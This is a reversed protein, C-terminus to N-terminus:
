TKNGKLLLSIFYIGGVLNIVVSIPTSLNLVREIILQGGVLAIISILISAPILYRHKYTKLFEHTINVVLLGLFTIPGILATSVSVLISTIILLVKVIKEYSLGLNIAHDRGLSLVDLIDIYDYMYIMVLLIIVISILLVDNNVNNFSAFMKGQVISFENPNIIMQMFSAGSRFLTGLILGVLLLFYINGKEKELMIKFLLVSFIVMSGVSLVFNMNNTFFGNKNSSLIFVILTQIFIYLSDLGMVSPTLIRNNTISQFIMSSFAIAGSTIVVAILKIGRKELVYQWNDSNMGICIFLFMLIVSVIFMLTLNRKIKM